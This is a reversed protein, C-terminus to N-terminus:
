FPFNQNGEGIMNGDSVDDKNDVGKATKISAILIYRIENNDNILSNMGSQLVIYTGKINKLWTLTEDAEKLAISLKHIFDARSEANVSEAINAAVSTGSRLVQNAISSNCNTFNKLYQEFKIIRQAFAESKMLLVNPRRHM